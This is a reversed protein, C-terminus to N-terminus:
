QTVTEKGADKQAPVLGRGQSRDRDGRVKMGVFGCQSRLTVMVQDTRGSTLMELRAKEILASLDPAMIAVQQGTGVLHDIELASFLGQVTCGM